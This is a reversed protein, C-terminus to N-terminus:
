EQRLDLVIEQEPLDSVVFERWELPENRRPDNVPLWWREGYRVRMPGIEPDRFVFTRHDRSTPYSSPGSYLQVSHEIRMGDLPTIRFIRQRELQVRHVQEL